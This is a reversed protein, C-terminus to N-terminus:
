DDSDAAAPGSGGGSPAPARAPAPAAVTPAKGKAGGDPKAAPSPSSPSSSSTAPPATEGEDEFDADADVFHDTAWKYVKKAAGSPSRCGKDLPLVDDGLASERRMSTVGVLDAGAVTLATEQFERCIKSRDRGVRTVLELLKRTKGDFGVITTETREDSKKGDPPHLTVDVRAGKKGGPLDVASATVARLDADGAGDDDGGGQYITLAQPKPGVGKAVVKLTLGGDSARARTVWVELPPISLKSVTREQAHASSVLLSSAFFFASVRFHM